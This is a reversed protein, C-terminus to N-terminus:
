LHHEVFYRAYYHPWSEDPAEVPQIKSLYELLYVLESKSMEVELFPQIRDYLYDAYWDAWEPHYGDSDIYARHHAKGTEKFLDALEQIRDEV